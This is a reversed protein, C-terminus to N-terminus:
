RHCLIYENPTLGRPPPRFEWKKDHLTDANNCQATGSSTDVDLTDSSIVPVRDADDEGKSHVTRVDYGSAMNEKVPVKGVYISM